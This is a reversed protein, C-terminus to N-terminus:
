GVLFDQLREGPMLIGGILGCVYLVYWWDSGVCTAAYCTEQKDQTYRPQSPAFAQDLAAVESGIDYTVWKGVIPIKLIRWIDELTITIMGM